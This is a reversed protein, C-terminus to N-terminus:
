TLGIRIIKEGYKEKLKDVERFPFKLWKRFLDLNIGRDRKLDFVSIGFMRAKRKMQPQPFKKFLHMAVNFLEREDNTYNMLRIKESVFGLDDYRITLIFYRTVLEKYRLKRSVYEIMKRIENVVDDYKYVPDTLTNNHNICKQQHEEHNSIISTDEGRAIKRLIAGNIGFEKHMAYLSSEALDGITHIGMPRLRREMRNGVGWIKKAPLAYIDPRNEERVVTMGDPKRFKSALKAYTKNYSIGLTVTLHEMEKVIQKVKWGFKAAQFYDNVVPTIELFCEDVSYQEICDEPLHKRFESLINQMICEYKQGYCPGSLLDPCLQLAELVSMGTKVGYARAEYSATMVIGKMGGNGGVSIPKGQLRPNDRQEVQAFFADFDLHIFYRRFAFGGIRNGVDKHHPFGYMPMLRVRKHPGRSRGIFFSSSIKGLGAMVIFIYLILSFHFLM